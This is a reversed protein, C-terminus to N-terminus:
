TVLEHGDAILAATADAARAAGVLVYDTDFTSIVFVSIGRAALSRTLEAAVGTTAFPIPGELALIKWDPEILAGEPEKGAPCVISTEAVTFTLSFFGADPDPTVSAGPPLRCVSYGGPLLRFRLQM